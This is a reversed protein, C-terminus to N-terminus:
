QTSPLARALVAGLVFAGATGLLVGLKAADALPSGAEFALAAIFLAMTFGVGCFCAVPVFSRLGQGAPWGGGVRSAVWLGGLIGLPKGLLLGAAVGLTVPQLLLAASLGALPVGANMAGFLPLVGWSVAPALVRQTRAAVAQPLVLGTIVGALTAHVGSKLVLLWLLAGALLYPLGRQVRARALGLMVALTLAAGLLMTPSLQATYFVAIVVIAGLDDLVAVATLFALLAPATRPAAIAMLGLAFAIDTAAPIAWGAMA